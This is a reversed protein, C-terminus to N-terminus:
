FAAFDQCSQSQPKQKEETTRGNRAATRQRVMIKVMVPRMNSNKPAKQLAQFPKGYLRKLHTPKVIEQGNVKLQQWSGASKEPQTRKCRRQSTLTPIPVTAGVAYSGGGTGGNVTLAYTTITSAVKLNLWGTGGVDKVQVPTLRQTGSTGDGLQGYENVGWAVVTGDSKLALCHDGLHTTIATVGTLNGSGGVGKVQAPLMIIQPYDSHGQGCQGHYNPGWAWVGDGKLALSAGGAAVASVGSLGPVQVPTYDPPIPNNPYGPVAGIGLQGSGNEGWAWVTGDNKLALVQNWGAAVATIGSVGSVQAPTPHANSDTTGNALAGSWNSGWAWVAGGSKLALSYTHGAAIAIVGTMVQVPTYRTTTTGDGLEGNQNEGWAWLTGDSKLALSHDIGASIATVNTLGSVRVPTSSYHGGNTEGDGLQGGGGTGWAWVTGDAKLALSFGGGASVAKVGSLGSVQVPTTRYPDATGYTGIGLQGYANWGWSYVTGDSKLALSHAGGASVMPTAIDAASATTPTAALLGCALALTLLISLIRKAKM